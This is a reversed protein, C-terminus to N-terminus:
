NYPREFVSREFGNNFKIGTSIEKNWKDSKPAGDWDAETYTRRAPLKLGEVEEYEVRMLFPQQMGFDMVTFLFQDVLHTEPHIYLIYTDQADGVGADFTVKVVDYEISGVQRTGLHEYNMGPDTLKFMMTFWYFNTKRMFDALKLAEPDTLLKGEQSAWTESGNYAQTVDGAVGPLVFAEHTTYKGWSLEGDFVYRELSVDKKGDATVYTYTFEVDKLAYLRERGGVAHVMEEVLARPDKGFVLTVLSLTFLVAAHRYIRSKSRIM